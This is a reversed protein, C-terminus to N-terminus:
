SGDRAKGEKLKAAAAQIDEWKEHFWQHWSECTRYDAKCNGDETCRSCKECCKATM